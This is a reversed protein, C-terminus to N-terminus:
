HAVKGRARDLARQWAAEARADFGGLYSRYTRRRVLDDVDRAWENRVAFEVEAQIFPHAPEIREAAHPDDDLIRLIELHRGGYSGLLARLVGVELHEYKQALLDEAVAFYDNMPPTDGGPLPLEATRCRQTKQGIRRQVTDVVREAVARYATYKGGLVGLMGPADELIDANRGVQGPDNEDGPRLARLGAFAFLVDERRPSPGELQESVEYLLYAIEAETPEVTDPSGTHDLDTTGVLSRGKFPLVFLVRGDQRASLLLAHGRTLAPLVIHTGRSLRPRVPQALDQGASITGYWPGAANVVMPARVSGRTGNTTDLVQVGCVRRDEVILGTVEVGNRVLAGHRAADVLNEIVLRADDMQADWFRFAGQLGRTGLAPEIEKAAAASLWRHGPLGGRWALLDYLTLGAEMWWRGRAGGESVPALFPLPRVLHPAIRRLTGRERLSERVLGFRFQELYRLGGHALKSSASSTGGAFDGREFLAVRMGRLAADRAIGAGHIGGGVVILDYRPAEPTDHATM